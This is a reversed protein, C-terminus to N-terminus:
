THQQPHHATFRLGLVTIGIVVTLFKYKLNEDVLPEELTRRKKRFHEKGMILYRLQNFTNLKAYDVESGSSSKESAMDEWLDEDDEDDGDISEEVSQEWDTEFQSFSVDQPAFTQSKAKKPQKTDAENLYEQTHNSFLRLSQNRHHSLFGYDDCDGNVNGLSNIFHSKFVFDDEDEDEGRAPQLLGLGLAPDLFSSKRADAKTSLIPNISVSRLVRKKQILMDRLKEILKADSYEMNGGRLNSRSSLKKINKKQKQLEFGIYSLLKENHLKLSQLEFKLKMIEQKTIDSSLINIDTFMSSRKSSSSLLSDRKSPELGKLKRLAEAQDGDGEDVEKLKNLMEKVPALSSRYLQDQQEFEVKIPMFDHSNYRSHNPKILLHRKSTSALRSSLDPEFYGNSTLKLPSLVFEDKLDEQEKLKIPLSKRKLVNADPSPPLRSVPPPLREPTPLREPSPIREPSPPFQFNRAVDMFNDEKYEPSKIPSSTELAYDDQVLEDALSSLMNLSEESEEDYQQVHHKVVSLGLPVRSALNEHDLLFDREKTLYEIQDILLAKSNRELELDLQLAKVSKLLRAYKDDLEQSVQHSHSRGQELQQLYRLSKRQLDAITDKYFAIEKEYLALENRREDQLAKVIRETNSVKVTLEDVLAIKKGLEEELQSYEKALTNNRAVMEHHRQLPSEERLPSRSPSKLLTKGSPSKSLTTTPTNMLRLPSRARPSGLSEM